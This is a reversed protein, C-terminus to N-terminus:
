DTRINQYLYSYIDFSAATKQFLYSDKLYQYLLIFVGRKLQFAIKVDAWILCIVSPTVSFRRKIRLLRGGLQLLLRLTADYLQGVNRINESLKIMFRFCAVFKLRFSMKFRVSSLFQPLFM